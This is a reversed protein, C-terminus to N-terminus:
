NLKVKFLWMGNAAEMISLVAGSGLLDLGSGPQGWDMMEGASHTAVDRSLQHRLMKGGRFVLFHLSHLSAGKSVSSDSLLDELLM